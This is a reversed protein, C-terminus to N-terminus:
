KFHFNIKPNEYKSRNLEKKTWNWKKVIKDNITPTKLTDHIIKINNKIRLKKKTSTANM